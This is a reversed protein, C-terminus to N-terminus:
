QDAVVVARDTQIQRAGQMQLQMLLGVGVCGLAARLRARSSLSRHSEAGKGMPRKPRCSHSGQRALGM